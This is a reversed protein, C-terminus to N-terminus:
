IHLVRQPEITNGLLGVLYMKVFRLSPVRNTQPSALVLCPAVNLQLVVMHVGIFGNHLNKQELRLVSVAEWRLGRGARLLVDSLVHACLRTHALTNIITQHTYNKTVWHCQDLNPELKNIALLTPM